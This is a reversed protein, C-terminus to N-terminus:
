KENRRLWRILDGVTMDDPALIWLALGGVMLVVAFIVDM